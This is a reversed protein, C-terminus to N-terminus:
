RFNPRSNLDDPYGTPPPRSGYAAPPVGYPANVAPPAIPPPVGYSPAGNAPPPVAPQGYPAQPPQGYAPATNYPPPPAGSGAMPPGLSNLLHFLFLLVLYDAYLLYILNDLEIPKSYQQPPPYAPYHADPPAGAPPYGAPASNPNTPPAGQNWQGSAPPAGAPPFGAGTQASYNGYGQSYDVSGYYDSM